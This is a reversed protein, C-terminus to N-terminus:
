DEDDEDDENDKLLALIDKRLAELYRGLEEDISDSDDEVLESALKESIEKYEKILVKVFNKKMDKEMLFKLYRM